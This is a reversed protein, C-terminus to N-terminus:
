SMGQIKAQWRAVEATLATVDSSNHQREAYL